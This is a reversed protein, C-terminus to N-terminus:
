AVPTAADIPLVAGALAPIAQLTAFLNPSSDDAMYYFSGDPNQFTLLTERRDVVDAGTATYAQIVLATSNADAPTGEAPSYAAGADTWTSELFDMGSSVLESEGNGSAILAQIVMATTNSDAAAPDTSADFAWGGNEAQTAALADIADSPVDSGAAAFALIALAHDYVGTGYLGTDASIGFEVISLPNVTAFDKPDMGIAALAIVLKASQGPGTQAYVLAVDSSELFTVATDVSEGTDLGAREAAAFALLADVTVGADPEGSFGLFSGDPQQQSQLWAIAGELGTGGAVPSAAPSSEQAVAARAGGLGIPLTLMMLLLLHMWIRRTM